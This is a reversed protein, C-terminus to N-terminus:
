AQEVGLVALLNRMRAAALEPKDLV